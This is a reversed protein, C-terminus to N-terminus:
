GILWETGNWHLSDSEPHDARYGDNTITWTYKDMDDIDGCSRILANYARKDRILIDLDDDRHSESLKAARAQLKGRERLWNTAVEEVVRQLQAVADDAPGDTERLSEVADYWETMQRAELSLHKMFSKPSSYRTWRSENTLKQALAARFTHTQRGSAALGVQLEERIIKRLVHIDM